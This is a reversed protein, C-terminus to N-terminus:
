GDKVPTAKLAAKGDKVYVSFRVDVCGPKAMLDDRNRKLKEAFRAYTLGATPEGCHKKMAVFENFISRFYPDEEEDLTAPASPMSPGPTSVMGLSATPMSLIDDDLAAPPPPAPAPPPEAARGPVSPMPIPGRAAARGAAGQAPPPTQAATPTAQSTSALPSSLPSRPTVALELPPPGASPPSLSPSSFKFESPPPPRVPADPMRAPADDLADEGGPGLLQELNRRANRLERGQKDVKINVARAISGFRGAHREEPLRDQQNGGLAVADAQLRRLPRDAEIIMLVIGLGLALVFAVAIAVWPFNAFSMDDKRVADLTGMLGLAKSRELYVGFFADASRAEGPLRAVVARYETAGSRAVVPARAKCDDVLDTRSAALPQYAQLLDHDLVDATSSVVLKDDAFFSIKAGLPRVVDEALQKSIASGIVVAGVYAAPPDRRVVPSAAVRYLRGGMFWLDDRLQGALADDVLFRGAMTDGFADEDIGARAVVRGRPDILIAFDPRAGAVAAITDGAVKRADKARGADIADAKAAQELTTVVAPTRAFVAAVEVQTRAADRLLINVVDCAVVLRDREELARAREAPRPLLLAVTLAVAAAAAVIFLWIKSWFV